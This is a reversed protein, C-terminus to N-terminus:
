GEAEDLITATFPQGGPPTVQFGLSWNGVMILAPASRAYVGPRTETLQYQQQPMEMQTHNFTLVVNANRVPQRNKTIRLAFSDPAAARNPSVIVSLKYGARTVTRAVPGPGVQALAANQLALAPPPPTLSSLLAAVFVAGGVLIVEGSALGRLLGAAATARRPDARAAALAPSTRLLNGSAVVVAALLIGVKVLIAVGYGTKWLANLTPIHDIAEITGSIALAAVSGLALNSFRPVVVSLTAVRRAAPVAFWVVLLGVLGGLWLSGATLHLWDASLTLGAPSTQAAHGATGPVLLVAGAALLAGAQSALEALSRRERDPRDLFLATWGAVCFLAFCLLMDVYGRGFATVRLLPLLAGLDFVSRLSDVATSADLYAAIALLGVVSAVVYAVSLARLGSGDTRRPLIRAVLFRLVFLGIAIMVSLFMVTRTVLPQPSTARGAISPIAFRPAPGPNPGVAYTFAGQVPHGDVSIARWYILYWGEPLNRRLPVVLTAPDAASRRVPGTVEQAGSASTVSIIAFRPEVTEDYSLAVTSPPSDLVGSAAPVTKILYAHASASGPASLAVAVAAAVVAIWTRLRM